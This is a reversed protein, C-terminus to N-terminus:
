GFIAKLPARLQIEAAIKPAVKVTNAKADRAFHLGPTGPHNAGARPGAPTLIARGRGRRARPGIRHPKTRADLLHAPGTYRVLVGDPKLDFRAKVAASVKSGPAGVGKAAAATTFATKGAMGVATRAKATDTLAGALRNFKGVLEGVSQSSGM